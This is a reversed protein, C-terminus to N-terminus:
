RMRVSKFQGGIAPEDTEAELHLQVYDRIFEISAVEAGLLEDRISAVHAAHCGGARGFRWITRYRVRIFRRLGIGARFVLALRRTTCSDPDVSALM